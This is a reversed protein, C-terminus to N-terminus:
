KGYDPSLYKEANDMVEAIGVMRAPDAPLPIELEEKFIVEEGHKIIVPIIVKEKEKHILFKASFDMSRYSFELEIPTDMPPSQELVKPFVSNFFFSAVEKNRTDKDTSEHFWAEKDEIVPTKPQELENIGKGFFNVTLCSTLTGAGICTGPCIALGIVLARIYKVISSKRNLPEHEIHNEM